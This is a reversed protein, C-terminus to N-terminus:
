IKDAAYLNRAKRLAPRSVPGGSMNSQFQFTLREQEKSVTYHLM